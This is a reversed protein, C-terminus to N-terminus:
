QYRILKGSLWHLGMHYAGIVTLAIYMVMMGLFLLPHKLYSTLNELKYYGKRFLYWRSFAKGYGNTETDVTTKMKSFYYNKKRLINILTVEKEDHYVGVDFVKSIKGGQELCRITPQIEEFAIQEYNIGGTKIFSAMRWFRAAEISTDDRNFEFNNIVQREFVKVKTFFNTYSSYPLERVILGDLFPDEAMRDTLKSLLGKQLLMDADLIMLYETNRTMARDIACKRAMGREGHALKLLEISLSGQYKEIVQTTHDTSGDDAIVVDFASIDQYLLSRLLGQIHEPCNYTTIVITLAKM